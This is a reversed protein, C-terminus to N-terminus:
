WPLGVNSPLSVRLWNSLLNLDLLGHTPVHMNLKWNYSLSGMSLLQLEKCNWLCYDMLNRQGQVEVPLFVATLQWKRSWPPWPLSTLSCSCYNKRWVATQWAMLCVWPFESSSPLETYNTLQAWSLEHCSFYLWDLLPSMYWRCLSCGWCWFGWTRWVFDM